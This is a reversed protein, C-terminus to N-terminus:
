QASKRHSLPLFRWAINHDLDQWYVGNFFPFTRDLGSTAERWIRENIEGKSQINNALWVIFYAEKQLNVEIARQVRNIEVHLMQEQLEVQRSLASRYLTFTSILIVACVLTIAVLSAFRPANTQTNANQQNQPPLLSM